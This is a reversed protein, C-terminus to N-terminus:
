SLSEIVPDIVPPPPPVAGFLGHSVTWSRVLDFNDAVCMLQYQLYSRYQAYSARDTIMVLVRRIADGDYTTIHHPEPGGEVKADTFNKKLNGALIDRFDFHAYRFGCFLGGFFLLFRTQADLNCLM